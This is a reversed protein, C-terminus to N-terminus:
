RPAGALASDCAAALERHLAGDRRGAAWRDGAAALARLGADSAALQRRAELWAQRAAEGRAARADAAAARALGEHITALQTRPRADSTDAAALREFTRLEAALAARAAATRGALALRCGVNVRAIADTLAADANGPDAAAAAHTHTRARLSLALASDAGGPESEAVGALLTYGAALRRQLDPNDPQAQALPRLLALARTAAARISDPAGGSESLIDAYGTTAIALATVHKAEAPFERALAAFGDLGARVTAVAESDRGAGHLALALNHQRRPLGTRFRLTDPALAVLRRNLEVAREQLALAEDARSHELDWLSIRNCADMLSFLVRTDNTRVRALPELLERAAAFSRQADEARGVNARWPQGQITGLRLYAQALDLTLATDAGADARLRALYEAARAVILERAPTAGPLEAIADNVDFLLSRTLAHVDAFRRTALAAQERARAAQWTAVATGALLALVAFAGAAVAVRNRGVFKRARYGFSDPRAHVPFGALHRRLDDALEAASAYRRAPEAQLAKLVINDLDGALRAGGDRPPAPLRSPADSAAAVTARSPREPERERVARARETRGGAEPWPRAGALLEYLLVGLAFVDSALTAPADRLQEPSAYEPTMPALATRTGADSADDDALLKAIGFDLLRPSGDATVLLNGPKLDRHLVFQQHAHHVAACVQLFLELRERVGLARRTCYEYLPEGEVYEMVLWPLGGPTAGGDLLRAIGPHELRALIRRERVFRAVLEATPLSSRVLKLAGRQTFGGDRREALLVVGMGGSGLERVVSWAGFRAGPRVLAEAAAASALARAEDGGPELFAGSGDHHGLLALAEDALAADGASRERVFAAREGPPLALAAEFLAALREHRESM